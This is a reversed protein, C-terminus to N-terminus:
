IETGEQLYRYITGVNLGLQKATAYPSQRNEQFARQIVAGKFRQLSISGLFGPEQGAWKLEPNKLGYHRIKLYVTAIGVGLAEAVKECNRRHHILAKAFLLEEYNKWTWNPHYPLTPALAERPTAQPHPTEVPPLSPTEEFKKQL